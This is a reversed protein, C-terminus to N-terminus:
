EFISGHTMLYAAGIAALTGFCYVLLALVNALTRRWGGVVRLRDTGYYAMGGAAGGITVAGFLLTFQAFSFSHPNAAYAVLRFVTLAVALGVGQLVRRRLSAGHVPVEYTGAPGHLRVTNM